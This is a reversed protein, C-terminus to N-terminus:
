VRTLTVRRTVGLMTLSFRLTGDIYRFTKRERSSAFISTEMAETDGFSVLKAGNSASSAMTGKWYLAAYDDGVFSIRIDGHKVKAKMDPSSSRWTGRLSDASAPGCASLVFAATLVVVFKSFM